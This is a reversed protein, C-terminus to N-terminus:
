SKILVPLFCLSFMNKLITFIPSDCIQYISPYKDNEGQLKFKFKVKKPLNQLMISSFKIEYINM